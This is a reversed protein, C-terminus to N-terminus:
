RGPSPIAVDHLARVGAPGATRTILAVDALVSPCSGCWRTERRPPDHVVHEGIVREIYYTQTSHVSVDHMNYM